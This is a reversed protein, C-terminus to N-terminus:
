LPSRRAWKSNDHGVCLPACTLAAAKAVRAGCRAESVEEPDLVMTSLVAGLDELFEEQVTGHM